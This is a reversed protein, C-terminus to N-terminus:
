LEANEVGNPPEAFVASIIAEQENWIEQLREMTPVGGFVEDVKEWFDNNAIEANQIAVQFNHKIADQDKPLNAETAVFVVSALIGAVLVWMLLWNAALDSGASRAYVLFSVLALFAIGAWEYKRLLIIQRIKRQGSEWLPKLRQYEEYAELRKATERIWYETYLANLCQQCQAMQEETMLSQSKEVLHGLRRWLLVVQEKIKQDEYSDPVVGLSDLNSLMIQLRVYTRQPHTSAQHVLAETEERASALLQEREELLARQEEEEQVARAALSIILRQQHLLQAAVVPILSPDV